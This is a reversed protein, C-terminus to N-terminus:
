SLCRLSSFAGHTETFEEAGSTLNPWSQLMNRLLSWCIYTVHMENTISLTM